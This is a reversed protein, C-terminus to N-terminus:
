GPLSFFTENVAFVLRFRLLIVQGVPVALRTRRGDEVSGQLCLLGRASRDHLNARAVATGLVAFTSFVFARLSITILWTCWLCGHLRDSLAEDAGYAVSRPQTRSRRRSLPSPVGPKAPKGTCIAPLHQNQNESDNGLPSNYGRKSGWPFILM